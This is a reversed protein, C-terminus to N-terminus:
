DASSFTVSDRPRADTINSTKDEAGVIVKYAGRPVKHFEGRYSDSGPARRLQATETGAKLLGERAELAKLTASGQRDSVVEIIGNRPDGEAGPGPQVEVSQSRQQEPAFKLGLMDGMPEQTQGNLAYRIRLYLYVGDSERFMTVDEPPQKPPLPDIHVWDDRGTEPNQGKKFQVVSPSESIPTEWLYVKYTVPEAQAEAEAVPQTKADPAKKPGFLWRVTFWGGVLLACLAVGVLVGAIFPGVGSALEPPERRSIAARPTMQAPAVRATPESPAQSPEADPTAQALQPSEGAIPEESPKAPSAAFAEPPAVPVLQEPAPAPPPPATPVAPAPTQPLPMPRQAGRESPVGVSLPYEQDLEPDEHLPPSGVHLVVAAVNGRGGKRNAIRILRDVAAAPTASGRLARAILADDIERWLGDTCFLLIDGESLEVQETQIRSSDPLAGLAASPEPDFDEETAAPVDDRTLQTLVAGRADLRYARSDGVHVLHAVSGECYAATLTTAMGTISVNNEANQKLQADICLAVFRHYDEATKMGEDFQALYGDGWRAYREVADELMNLAQASAVSGGKRQGVGDAVACLWKEVGQEAHRAVRRVCQSDEEGRGSRRPVVGIDSRGAGDLRLTNEALDM